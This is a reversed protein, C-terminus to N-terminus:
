PGFIYLLLSESNQAIHQYTFWQNKIFYKTFPQIQISNGYLRSKYCINICAYIQICQVETSVGDRSDCTGQDASFSSWNAAAASLKTKNMSATSWQQPAHQMPIAHM